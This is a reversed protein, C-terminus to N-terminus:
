LFGQHGGVVSLTFLLTDSACKSSKYADNICITNWVNAEPPAKPEPHPVTLVVRGPMM